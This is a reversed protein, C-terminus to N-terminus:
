SVIWRAIWSVSVCIDPCIHEVHKFPKIGLGVYRMQDYVLPLIQGLLKEHVGRVVYRPRHAYEGVVVLRESLPAGCKFLDFLRSTQGIRDDEALVVTIRRLDGTYGLVEVRPTQWCCRHPSGMRSINRPKRLTRGKIAYRM